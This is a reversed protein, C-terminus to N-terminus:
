EFAPCALQKHNPPLVHNELSLMPHADAHALLTAHNMPPSHSAVEAKAIEVAARVTDKVAGAAGADKVVRATPDQEQCYCFHICWVIYLYRYNVNPPWLLSRRTLHM